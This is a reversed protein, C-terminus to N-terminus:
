WINSHFYYLDNCPDKHWGPWISISQIPKEYIYIIARSTMEIGIYKWLLLLYSFSCVNVNGLFFSFSLSLVNCLYNKQYTAAIACFRVELSFDLPRIPLGIFYYTVLISGVVCLIARWTWVLWSDLIVLFGFLTDLYLSSHHM